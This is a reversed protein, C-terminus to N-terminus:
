CPPKAPHLQGQDRGKGTKVASPRPHGKAGGGGTIGKGSTNKAGAKAM